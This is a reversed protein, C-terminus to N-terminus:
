RRYTTPWTPQLAKPLYTTTLIGLSKAVSKFQLTSGVSRRLQERADDIKGVGLLYKAYSRRHSAFAEVFADLWENEKLGRFYPELLEFAHVRARLGALRDSSLSGKRVRYAVLREPNYVVPGILSVLATCYFDEAGDADFPNPGIKTLVWKPMCCFSYSTFPGPSRNYERFFTLGSTSSEPKASGALGGWEPSANEYFNVHGSFIAAADPHRSAVTTEKELYRPHLVDDSDLFAILEGTSKSILSNRASSLGGNPQRFANIKPGYSQLISPTEDTSGDDMVLIEHAPSTQNLVSDITERVTSACNYAPILVSVKM